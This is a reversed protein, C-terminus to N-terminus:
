QMMKQTSYVKLMTEASEKYPGFGTLYDQIGMNLPVDPTVGLNEIPNMDIRQAISATYRISTVGFYSMASFDRIYGGAGATRQGVIQGVKNDQLITPFFDGGSFDLENVLVIFPKSYRVGPYPNIQDVGWIFYPDTLKKGALYEKMYFRGYNELMKLVQFSMPYGGLTPGFLALATSDDKVNEVMKLLEVLVAVNDMSVSMKHQPTKLPKNTLMSALAYLYFVSGGPNNLQDIIMGDTFQEFRSIIAQFDAIAKDANEPTYNPIRVVGIMKRESNQYMYADFTDDDSSTWIRPGFDGIYPERNGIGYATSKDAVSAIEKDASMQPLPISVKKGPNLSTLKQGLQVAPFSENTYNWIIQFEKQEGTFLSRVKVSVPGQPVVMNKRASRRTLYLDMLSQDTTPVNSGVQPRISNFVDKIAVGGIELLQDGPYIPYLALPLQKTDVWIVFTKDNITKVQFPLTASETAQFSYGVHYDATSYLFDVLAQRYERVNTAKDIKEHGAKLQDELKWKLFSKKWDKPAYYNDFINKVIFNFENHLEDKSVTPVQPDAGAKSAAVLNVLSLGALLFTLLIGKRVVGTGQQSENVNVDKRSTTTSSFKM